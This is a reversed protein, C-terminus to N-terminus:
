AMGSSGGVVTSGHLLLYDYDYISAHSCSLKTKEQMQMCAIEICAVIRSWSSTFNISAERRRHPIPKNTHVLTFNHKKIDHM